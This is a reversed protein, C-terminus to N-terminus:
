QYEQSKKIELNEFLDMANRFAQEMKFYKYNALLGVFYVDLLQDAEKKYKANNKKIIKM